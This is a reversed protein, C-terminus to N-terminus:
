IMHRNGSGSSDDDDDHYDGYNTSDPHANSGIIFCADGPLWGLM